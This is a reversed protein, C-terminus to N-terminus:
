SFKKVEYILVTWSFHFFRVCSMLKPKTLTQFAITLHRYTTSTLTILVNLVFDWVVVEGTNAESWSFHSSFRPSPHHFYSFLYLISGKYVLSALDIHSVIWPRLLQSSPTPCRFHYIVCSQAVFLPNTQHLMQRWECSRKIEFNGNTQDSSM